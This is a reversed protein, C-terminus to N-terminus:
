SGIQRVRAPRRSWRAWSSRATESAAHLGSAIRDRSSGVAGAADGMLGIFCLHKIMIFLRLDPAGAVLRFAGTRLSAGTTLMYTVGVTPRTNSKMCRVSLFNQVIYRWGTQSSFSYM